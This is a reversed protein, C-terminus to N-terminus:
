PSSDDSIIIVIISINLIVNGVHCLTRAIKIDHSIMAIVVVVIRGCDCDHDCGCVVMVAVFVLVLVLVVVM